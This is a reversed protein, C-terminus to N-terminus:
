VKFRRVLSDLNSALNSLEESSLLIQETGAKSEVSSDNIGVLSRNIEEAVSSQEESASAIQANMDTISSVAQQISVLAEGAASAQEGTAEARTRSADMAQAADKTGAQLREIAQQIEATSQQTRQALTRVEDAVVAFGRGQDGARAAEIAANLALLNTQEAIGQIVEIISGINTSDNEVATIKESVDCVESILDNTATVASSVISTGQEAQTLTDRAASDAMEASKAVDTVTAAMENMAAAVQQVEQSQYNVTSQASASVHNLGEAASSLKQSSSNIQNILDRMQAIMANFSNGITALEDKGQVNVELTLDSKESITKMTNNLHDIPKRVSQYIVFGLLGLVISLIAATGVETILTSDYDQQAQQELMNAQSLQLNVLETIKESIPDITDYLPGDFAELQGVVSGSKGSLFNKFETISNNAPSFLAEAEMILKQEDGEHPISTYESWKQKIRDTAENLNSLADQASIIGANAKNATDIVLVAYDDAIVKLEKLPVVRGEYLQKLGNNAHKLEALSLLTFGVLTLIPLISLIILKSRISLSSLFM